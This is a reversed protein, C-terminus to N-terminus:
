RIWGHSNGLLSAEEDGVDRIDDGDGMAIMGMGDMLSRLIRGSGVLRLMRGGILDRWFGDVDGDGGGFM